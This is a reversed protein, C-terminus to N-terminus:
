DYKDEWGREEWWYIHTQRSAKRERMNFVENHVHSVHLIHDILQLIVKWQSKRSPMKVLKDIDSFATGEANFMPDVAGAIIHPGMADNFENFNKFFLEKTMFYQHTYTRSDFVYLDSETSFFRVAEDPLSDFYRILEEGTPNILYGGRSKSFYKEFKEKLEKFKM